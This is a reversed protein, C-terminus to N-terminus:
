TLMKYVDELTLNFQSLFDYDCEEAIIANFISELAKGFKM